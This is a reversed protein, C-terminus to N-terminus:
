VRIIKNEVLYQIGKVFDDDSILDDAWWGANNKIWNPIKKEETIDGSETTPVKIIGAKIMFEIGSAFDSDLIKGESWWAANNRVWDPIAIEKPPQWDKSFGTILVNGSERPEVTFAVHWNGWEDKSQINTKPKENVYVQFKEDESSASFEFNAYTELPFSNLTTMSLETGEDNFKANSYWTYSDYRYDFRAGNRIAFQPIVTSDGVAFCSYYSIQDTIAADPYMTFEKIEGPLIQDIREISQGMDLVKNDLGHILAYVKINTIPRDGNNIIRGTLHGDEHKILSDDYLVEVPISRETGPLYSIKPELLVISPSTLNPFKVKFPLTNGPMINVFTFSKKILNEGDQIQILVTPVIPFDESNKIAGIVTYVGGVDVYRIFENEPIFVGGNRSVDEKTSVDANATQGMNFLILILGFIVIGITSNKVLLNITKFIKLNSSCKTCYVSIFDRM